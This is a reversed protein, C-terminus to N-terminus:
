KCKQKRSSGSSSLSSASTLFTVQPTHVESNAGTMGVLQTYPPVWWSEGDGEGCRHHHGMSATGRPTEWGLNLMWTYFELKYCAGQLTLLQHIRCGQTYHWRHEHLWNKTDCLVQQRAAGRDRWWTVQVVSQRPAVEEGEPQKYTLIALSKKM